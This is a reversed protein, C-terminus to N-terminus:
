NVSHQPVPPEEVVRKAEIGQARLMEALKRTPLGMLNDYDGSISEILTHAGDQLGFSGAKDKWSGTALYAERLKEVEPSDKKFQVRTTETDVLEISKANNILAVGSVVLNEKGALNLLTERAEEITESKGLQRGDIWVITDSGIVYDDPHSAAVDRAKGLSLEKAMDEVGRTDDLWEDFNSPVVDFEVGMEGLLYKRRPSQSALIINNM